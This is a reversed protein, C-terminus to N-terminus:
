KKGPVVNARFAREPALYRKALEDIEAKTIAKTDAYRTRPWDLREPYEQVSALAATLWYRNNRAEDRILTLAPNKARTLEDETVGNQSLDLAIATITRDLHQMKSPDIIAHVTLAGYGRCGTSCYSFAYPNYSEGLQERIKLRLRDNFIAALMSLRRSVRADYGDTTPWLFAIVGKPIETDIAHVVTTPAVYAVSLSDNYPPKSARSPLAGFTNSVAAIAAKTDIDGVITIEIPGSSLQPKLWDRVEALTRSFLEVRTALDFRTDGGKAERPLDMLLPRMPNHALGNYYAEFHKRALQYSEPRFGPDTLYATLLQLQGLLGQRSIDTTFTIADHEFDFKMDGSRGAYIRKIDDASHKGLGGNIFVTAALQALGPKDGPQAILGSGIRVHINVKGAEFNTKKLNLRVNNAYTILDCDLDGIHRRGIIKGPTAPLPYAFYRNSARGPLPVIKATNKEYAATIMEAADGDIVANGIVTIYRGSEPFLDNLTVRLTNLTINPIISQALKLEDSPRTFVRGEILSYALINALKDSTRTSAQAANKRFYGGMNSFAERLEEFTFGHEIARKLEQKLLALARPWERADCHFKIAATRYLNLGTSVSAYGSIIPVGAKKALIEFRRNLLIVVLNRCIDAARAVVTDSDTMHSITQIGVVTAAAEPEHHYLARIGIFEGIPGLDPDPQAPARPQLREFKEAILKRFASANFDGVAVIAMREPRYWTDYYRVFDDRNAKEIVSDLGIPRREPIRNGELVLAQEALFGRQAVSDRTRKESLIIGREKDIQEQPFLLGGACDAFVLLGENLTATRTDPLELMYITCHPLTMANSDKGLDMGMRQFYEVMTHPAYHTSGNFAMHELFHALGQQDDNEQLSGALVVLRLSARKKPERNPLIAYRLGNKLVGFKVAPDAKLDSREHAFQLRSPAQAAHAAAIYLFLAIALAVPVRILHLNQTHM